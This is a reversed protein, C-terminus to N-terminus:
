PERAARCTGADPPPRESWASAQCRALWGPTALRPLLGVRWTRDIRRWLDDMGTSLVYHGTILAVSDRAALDPDVGDLLLGAAAASELHARVGVEWRDTWRRRACELDPAAAAGATGRVVPDYMWRAVIADSEVVLRWMPDLGRAAVEAAIEGWSEEVEEFLARMLDLKSDFHFYLAGKTLDAASIVDNVSAGHYGRRHFEQAAALLLRRRTRCAKGPGGLRQSWTSVPATTAAPSPPDAARVAPVSGTRSAHSVSM